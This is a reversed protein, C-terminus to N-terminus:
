LGSLEDYGSLGDQVDRGGWTGGQAMTVFVSSASAILACAYSFHIVGQQGGSYLAWHGHPVHLSLHRSIEVQVQEGLMTLQYDKCSEICAYRMLGAWSTDKLSLPMGAPLCGRLLGLQRWM